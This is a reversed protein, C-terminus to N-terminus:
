RRGALARGREFRCEDAPVIHAHMNVEMMELAARALHEHLHQSPMPHFRARDILREIAPLAEKASAALRDADPHDYPTLMDVVILATLSESDGKNGM